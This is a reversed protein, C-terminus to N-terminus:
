HGIQGSKSADATKVFDQVLESMMVAFRPHSGIPPLIEITVGPHRRMLEATQEPIDHDFHNGRAMFIPMIRLQREGAEVLERVVEPLTPASMEMFSLYVRDEGYEQRLEKLIAEFPGRWHPNRSGHAILVLCSKKM